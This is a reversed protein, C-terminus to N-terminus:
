AFSIVVPPYLNVTILPFCVSNTWFSYECRRLSTLLTGGRDRNWRRVFGALLESHQVYKDVPINDWGVTVLKVWKFLIWWIRQYCKAIGYFLNKVAQFARFDIKKYYLLVFFPTVCICSSFFFLKVKICWYWYRLYILTLM